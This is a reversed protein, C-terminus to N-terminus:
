GFYYNYHYHCKNIYQERNNIFPFIHIQNEGSENRAIKFATDIIM